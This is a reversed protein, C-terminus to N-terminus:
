PRSGTPGAMHAGVGISLGVIRASTPAPAQADIRSSLPARENFWSADACISLSKRAICAEAKAVQISYERPDNSEIRLLSARIASGVMAIDRDVDALPESFILEAFTGWLVRGGTKQRSRDNVGYRGALVAAGEIGVRAFVGNNTVQYGVKADPLSLTSIWLRQAGLAATDFGVLVFGSSPGSISYKRGGWLGLRADGVIGEAGGGVALAFKESFMSDGGLPAIADIHGRTAVGGFWREGATASGRSVTGGRAGAFISAAMWLPIQPSKERDLRPAGDRRCWPMERSAPSDDCVVEQTPRLNGRQARPEPREVPSITLSSPDAGDASKERVVANFAGGVTLGFMRASTLSATQPDNSSFLTPRENWLHVDACLGLFGNSLCLSGEVTQVTRRGASLPEQRALSLNLALAKWVWSSDNARPLRSSVIWQLFPGWEIREGTKRVDDDSLKYRGVLNPAAKVGAALMAGRSFWRYGLLVQPLRVSSMWIQGDGLAELDVGGGLFLAHHHTLERFIGGRIAYRIHGSLGSDGGGLTFDGLPAYFLSFKSWEVWPHFSMSFAATREHGSGIGDHSATGIRVGAIGQVAMSPEERHDDVRPARHSEDRRAVEPSPPSPPSPQALALSGSACFGFAAIALVSRHFSYRSIM